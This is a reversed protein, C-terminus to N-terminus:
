DLIHLAVCCEHNNENIMQLPEYDFISTAAAVAVASSTRADRVFLFALLIYLYLVKAQFPSSACLEQACFVFSIEDAYTTHYHTAPHHYIEARLSLKIDSFFFKM